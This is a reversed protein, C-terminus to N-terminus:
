VFIRTFNLNAIIRKKTAYVYAKGHSSIKPIVKEMGCVPSGHYVEM